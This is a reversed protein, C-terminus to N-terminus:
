SARSWQWLIPGEPVNDAQLDFGRLMQHAANERPFGWPVMLFISTPLCIIILGDANALRQTDIHTELFDYEDVDIDRHAISLMYDQSSAIEGPTCDIDDTILWSNTKEERLEFYTHLASCDNDYFYNMVVQNVEWFYFIPTDFLAAEGWRDSDLCDNRALQKFYMFGEKLIRGM